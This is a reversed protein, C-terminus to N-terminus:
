VERVFYNEVKTITLFSKLILSIGQLLLFSLGLPIMSKIVFRYPLGGPDSSGEGILFSQYAFNSAYYIGVLCFPVLFLLSGLLNVLAKTRPLFKAYFLDVRVHRDHKFAFGAGLLFIMAFLHWEVEFIAVSTQNFMYRMTVDYVFVLVLLTTLWSVGQGVVENLRDIGNIILKAIKM